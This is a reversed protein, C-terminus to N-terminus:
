KKLFKLLTIKRELKELINKVMPEEFIRKLLNKKMKKLLRILM